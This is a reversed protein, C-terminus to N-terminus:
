ATDPGLKRAIESFTLGHHDNFHVLLHWETQVRVKRNEPQIKVTKSGCLPCASVERTLGALRKADFGLVNVLVGGACRGGRSDGWGGRVQVIGKREAEYLVNAGAENM